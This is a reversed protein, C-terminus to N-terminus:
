LALGSWGFSPSSAHLSDELNIGQDARFAGPAHMNFREYDVARLDLAQCFIDTNDRPSSWWRKLRGLCVDSSLVAREMQTRASTRGSCWKEAQQIKQLARGFNLFTLFYPLVPVSRCRLRHEVM